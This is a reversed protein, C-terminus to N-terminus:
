VACFIFNEMFSKNLLHSWIMLKQCTFFYKSVNKKAYNMCELQPIEAEQDLIWIGRYANSKGAKVM